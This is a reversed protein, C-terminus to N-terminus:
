PARSFSLVPLPAFNLQWKCERRFCNLFWQPFFCVFLRVFLCVSLCVSLWAHVLPSCACCLGFACKNGAVLSVPKRCYAPPVLAVGRGAGLVDLVRVTYCRCLAYLVGGGRNCCWVRRCRFTCVREPCCQLGRKSSLGSLFAVYKTGM